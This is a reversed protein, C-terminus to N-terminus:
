CCVPQSFPSMFHVCGQLLTRKEGLPKHFLNGNVLIYILLSGQATVFLLFLMLGVLPGRLLVASCFLPM